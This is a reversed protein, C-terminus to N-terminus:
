RHKKSEHKDLYREWLAQKMEERVEKRKKLDDSDKHEFWRLLTNKFDEERWYEAPPDEMM